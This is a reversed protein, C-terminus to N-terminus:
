YFHSFLESTQPSSKLKQFTSGNLHLQDMQEQVVHGDWWRVPEQDSFTRSVTVKVKCLLNEEHIVKLRGHVVPDGVVAVLLLQPTMNQSFLRQTQGRQENIIKNEETESSVGLLQLLGTHVVFSREHRTSTDKKINLVGGILWTTMQIRKYETIHCCM